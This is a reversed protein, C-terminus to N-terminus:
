RFSGTLFGWIYAHLVQYYEKNVCVNLKKNNFDILWDFTNNPLHNQYCSFGQMLKCARNETIAMFGTTEGQTILVINFKLKTM